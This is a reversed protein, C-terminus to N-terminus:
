GNLFLLALCLSILAVSPITKRFNNKIRIHTLVAFVMLTIIGMLGINQLEQNPYLLLAACTLKTIGTLDRLWTPYKFDEKFEKVINKYRVVWVFFLASAIATKLITTIIEITM